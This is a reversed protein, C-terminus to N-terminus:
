WSASSLRRGVTRGGGTTAVSRDAWSSAACGCRRLSARLVRDLQQAIQPTPIKVGTELEHLYSKGYFTLRALGRLSLGSEERLARLRGAFSPETM